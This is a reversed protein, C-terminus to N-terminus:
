KHIGYIHDSDVWRTVFDELFTELEQKRERDHLEVIIRKTKELTEVGGHLVKFEAGEVDIKLFDIEGIGLSPILSDLRRMDVLQRVNGKGREFNWTKSVSPHSAPRYNFIDEITDASGNCRVLDPNLNLFTRGDADSIAAEVPIFKCFLSRYGFEHRLSEFAVHYPEIAIITRYNKWLRKSYEGLNAGVDVLVQGGIKAIKM